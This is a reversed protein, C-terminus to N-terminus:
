TTFSWIDGEIVNDGDSDDIRWYYTTSETLSPAYSKEGQTAVLSLSNPNTGFYVEHSVIQPSSDWTLEANISVGTAGDSPIPSSAKDAFADTHGEIIVHIPFDSKTQVKIPSNVLLHINRHFEYAWVLGEKGQIPGIFNNDGDLISIWEKDGSSTIVIKEIWHRKSTEAAMITQPTSAENSVLQVCWKRPQQSDESSQSDPLKTVITM